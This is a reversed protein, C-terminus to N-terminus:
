KNACVGKTHTESEVLRWKTEVQYWTLETKGWYWTRTRKITVRHQSKSRWDPWESKIERSNKSRVVKKDIEGSDEKELKDQRYILHPSLSSPLSLFTRSLSLFPPLFSSFTRSLFLFPPLFSSFPVLCFFSPLSFPLSPFLISSLVICQEFLSSSYWVFLYEKDSAIDVCFLTWCNNRRRMCEYTQVIHWNAGVWESHVNNYIRLLTMCSLPYQWVM